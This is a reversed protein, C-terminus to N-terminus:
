KHPALAPAPAAEAEARMRARRDIVYWLVGAVMVLLLILLVLIEKPLRM